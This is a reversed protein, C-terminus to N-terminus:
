VVPRRRLLIRELDPHRTLRYMARILMDPDQPPQPGTPGPGPGLPAGATIPETSRQSPGFVGQTLGPPPEREMPAANQQQRLQKREGYRDTESPLRTPQSSPSLDTRQSLRGPGSAPAGKNPRVM